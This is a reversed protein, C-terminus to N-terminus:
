ATTVGALWRAYLRDALAQQGALHRRTGVRFQAGDQVTAPYQRCAQEWRVSVEHSWREAKDADVEVHFQLGLHPGMAFAQNPCAASSALREAGAPLDFAEFHWQCVTVQAADGFWARTAAAPTLDVDLWGIEPAPSAQVRGGLARAMLQGGLCHGLMPIGDAVAQRILGEARRLSPLPDNASMAGGLITLGGYGDLRDPVVDGAESNRLEFPVGQRTLWTALYSPGDDSLHQLILIPKM